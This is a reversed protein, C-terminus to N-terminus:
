VDEPIAIPRSSCKAACRQWQFYATTMLVSVRAESSVVVLLAVVATCM